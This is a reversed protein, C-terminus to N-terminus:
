RDVRHISPTTDLVASGPALRRRLTWWNGLGALPTTVLFMAWIAGLGGDFWRVAVWALGLTLWVALGGMLMPTRTDGSGRLGGGYVTWLAWFPLGPALVRLADVGEDIVAPDDTFFRMAPEAFFFYVVGGVSMWALAWLASIRGAARAQALDRAGICQGILATAAMAFGFGPMFVLSLATFAIHQAALAATGLLAVVALLTTFGASILLEELAAPIGL